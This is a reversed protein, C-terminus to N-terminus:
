YRFNPWLNIFVHCYCFWRVQSIAELTGVVDVNLNFRLLNAENFSIEELTYDSRNNLRLHIYESETLYVRGLRLSHAKFEASTKDRMLISMKLNEKIRLENLKIQEIRIREKIVNNLLDQM